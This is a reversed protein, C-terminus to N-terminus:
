PGSIYSHILPVGKLRISSAKAVFNDLPLFFRLAALLDCFMLMNPDLHRRLFQNNIMITQGFMWVCREIELVRVGAALNSNLDMCRNLHQM